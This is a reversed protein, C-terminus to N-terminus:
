HCRRIFSQSVDTGNPAWKEYLKLGSMRLRLEKLSKNTTQVIDDESFTRLGPQAGRVLGKLGGVGAEWKKGEISIDGLVLDGAVRMKKAKAQMAANEAEVELKRKLTDNTADLGALRSSQRTPRAPERKLSASKTKSSKPAPKKPTSIAIKKAAEAANNLLKQNAVLNERRRQEFTTLPKPSM